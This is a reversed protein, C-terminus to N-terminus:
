VVEEAPSEEQLKEDAQDEKLEDDINESPRMRMDMSIGCKPCELHLYSDDRNFIYIARGVTVLEELVQIDGCAGCVVVLDGYKFEAM